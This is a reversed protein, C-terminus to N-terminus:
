CSNIRKIKRFDVTKNKEQEPGSYELTGEELRTGFGGALLIAKM